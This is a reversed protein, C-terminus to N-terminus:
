ETFRNIIYCFTSPDVVAIQALMKVNLDVRHNKLYHRLKNYTILSFCRRTLPSKINKLRAAANVRCIALKRFDRKKRKRSVYSYILSKMVRQNAIRFLKSQSGKFGKARKLVKKRRNRAINGRKVRVM